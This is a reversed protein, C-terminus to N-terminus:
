IQDVREQAVFVSPTREPVSSPEGPSGPSSPGRDLESSKTIRTRPECVPQERLRRSLEEVQDDNTVPIFKEDPIKTVKVKFKTNLCDRYGEQPEQGQTRVSKFYSEFSHFHWLGLSELSGENLDLLSGHCARIGSGRCVPFWPSNFREPVLSPSFVTDATFITFPRDQSLFVPFAGLAAFGNSYPRDVPFMDGRHIWPMERLTEQICDSNESSDLYVAHVRSSLTLERIGELTWWLLSKGM